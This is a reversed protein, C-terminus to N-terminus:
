TEPYGQCGTWLRSCWSCRVATQSQICLPLVCVCMCVCVTHSTLWTHSPTNFRLDQEAKHRLGSGLLRQPTLTSCFTHTAACSCLESGQGMLVATQCKQTNPAQHAAPHFSGILSGTTHWTVDTNILYVAVSSILHDSGAWTLEAAEQREAARWNAKSQCESYM